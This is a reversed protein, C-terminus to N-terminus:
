SVKELVKRKRSAMVFIQHGEESLYQTLWSGLNGMGGTILIRM